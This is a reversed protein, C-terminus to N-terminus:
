PELLVKLGHGRSNKELAMACEDLKYKHTIVKRLLDSFERRKLLRLADFYEGVYIISGEIKLAGRVLPFVEIEAKHSLLGLVILKGGPRIFKFAQAFSNSNAVTDIVYDARSDGLLEVVSNEFGEMSANVVKLGLSKLLEVRDSLVETVVVNIKMSQLILATLVGMPGGGIVLVNDSPLLNLHRIARLVVSLPETLVAVEDDVNDPLKWVFKSPVDVYEAFVGNRTVGYIIKNECINTRGTRCYYCVGCYVNPEIVVRDGVNINKVNKGVKVVIGVAEHGMVLPTKVSRKGRYIELDSGCIGALKIKVLVDDDGITPTNIYEVGVNFPGKFLCARMVEPVIM